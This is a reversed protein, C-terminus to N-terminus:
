ISGIREFAIRCRRGREIRQGPPPTQRFAIGSGDFELLVLRALPSDAIARMTKGKVDPMDFFGRDDMVIIDAGRSKTDTGSEPPKDAEPTPELRRSPPIEMYNLIDKAIERFAPAAVKGGYHEGQPSDVVVVICAIPNDAPVFGAFVAVYKDRYYGGAEPDAKQATGTKGAVRYGDIRAATGTGTEVVEELMATLTEATKPRIVQRVFRPVNRKKTTGNADIIQSIVYPRMMRGKNAIASYAVCLQLTTVSIEQGIALSGISLGSWDSPPHVIGASEGPWNMGTPAGFGFNKFYAYLIEPTLMSVVKIMGINSSQAMVETFSIEGMPHVDHFTHRYFRMAGNECFVRDEATIVGRELAAAAAIPKFASGPEFIDTIVRNRLNERRLTSPRNPDFTPRGAMALVQGTKPDIVIATASEPSYRRVIDDLAKETSYQINEDITLVVNSGDRVESVTQALAAMERRSSDRVIIQEGPMGALASDLRLEIGELGENDVNAFGILNAALSGRPYRRSSESRFEVADLNLAAIEAAKKADLGRKLYFLYRGARKAGTIKDAIKGAPIGVHSTLIKALGLPSEVRSPVICLVEQALSTALPTGNRDCINGRRAQITIASERQRVVYDTWFDHEFIQITVLRAVVVAFGGLLLILCLKARLRNPNELKEGALISGPPKFALYQRM